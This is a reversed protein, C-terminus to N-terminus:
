APSLAHGRRDGAHDTMSLIIRNAVLSRGSEIAAITRMNAVGPEFWFGTLASGGAHPHRAREVLGDPDGRRSM